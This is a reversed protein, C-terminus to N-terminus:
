EGGHGAIALGLGAGSVSIRPVRFRLSLAPLTETHAFCPKAYPRNSSQPASDGCTVSSVAPPKQSVLDVDCAGWLHLLSRCVTDPM